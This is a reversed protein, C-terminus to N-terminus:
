HVAATKPLDDLVILFEVGGPQGAAIGLLQLPGQRVGLSLECPELNLPSKGFSWLSRHIVLSQLLSKMSKM